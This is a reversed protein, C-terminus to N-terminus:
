EIQQRIPKWQGGGNSWCGCKMLGTGECLDCTQSLYGNNCLLFCRVWQPGNQTQIINYGPQPSSACGLCRVMVVTSGQCRQCVSGLLHMTGGCTPCVEWTYDIRYVGQPTVLTEADPKTPRRSTACGGFLLALLCAMIARQAPLLPREAFWPRLPKLSQM